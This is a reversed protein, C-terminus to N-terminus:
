QTYVTFTNSTGHFFTYASAPVEVTLVPNPSGPLQVNIQNLGDIEGPATGAYFVPLSAGGQSWFVEVVNTFAPNASLSVVGDRAGYSSLSLGTLYLSVISSRQAPHFASNISGDANLVGFVGLSAAANMTMAPLKGSPTVVVVTSLGGAPVEFNIQDASAFLLPASVVKGQGSFQVSFGGIETPWAGTADPAAVVPTSPGLGTGYLTMLNGQIGVNGLAVPVASNAVAFVAPNAYPAATNIRLLNGAAGLLLLNGDSDFAPPQSLTKPLLPLIQQVATAGANLELAFDINAVGNLGPFDSSETFGTVWVNGGRDLALGALTA